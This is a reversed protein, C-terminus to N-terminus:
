PVDPKFLYLLNSLFVFVLIKGRKHIELIQDKAFFRYSNIEYFM